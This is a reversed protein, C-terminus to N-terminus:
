MVLGESPMKCMWIHLAPYLGISYWVLQWSCHWQCRSELDVAHHRPLSPGLSTALSPCPRPPSSTHVFPSPFIMQFRAHPSHLLPRALHSPSVLPRVHFAIRPRQPNRGSLVLRNVLSSTVHRRAFLTIYPPSPIGARPSHRPRPVLLPAPFPVLRPRPFPLSPTLRMSLPLDHPSTLNM